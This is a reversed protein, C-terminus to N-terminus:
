PLAPPVPTLAPVVTDPPAATPAPQSALIASKVMEMVIGPAQPYYQDNLQKLSKRENGERPINLTEYLLKRPLRYRISIYPLTMWDRILEADTEVPKTAFLPPPRHSHFERFARVTRLGFFVIIGLGIMILGVVFTRQKPKLPNAM